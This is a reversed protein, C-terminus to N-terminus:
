YVAEIESEATPTSSYILNGALCGLYHLQIGPKVGNGARKLGDNLMTTSVMSAMVLIVDILLKNAERQLISRGKGTQSHDNDRDGGLDADCQFNLQMYPTMTEIGWPGPQRFMLRDKKSYQVYRVIHRDSPKDGHRSLVNLAYMICVMGYM